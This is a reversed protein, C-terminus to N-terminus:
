RDDRVDNLQERAEKKNTRASNAQRAAALENRLIARAATMGIVDKAGVRKLEQACEVLTAGSTCVDDIVLVIKGKVAKANARFANRLNDERAEKSLKAQPRTFKARRLAHEVFPAELIDAVKRGVLAAQNYGRRYRRFWHLPVATVIVEKKSLTSAMNSFGNLLIYALDDALVVDKDYKFKRVLSTM